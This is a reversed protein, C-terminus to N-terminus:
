HITAGVGQNTRAFRAAADLLDDDDEVLLILAQTEIAATQM